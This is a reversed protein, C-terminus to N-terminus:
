DAAHYERCFNELPFSKISKGQEIDDSALGKQSIRLLVGHSRCSQEIPVMLDAPGLDGIEILQPGQIAADTQDIIVPDDKIDHTIPVQKHHPHHEFEFHHLDFPESRAFIIVPDIDMRDVM